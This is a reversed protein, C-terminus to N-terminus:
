RHLLSHKTNACPTIVFLRAVQKYIHANYPTEWLVTDGTMLKYLLLVLLALLEDMTSDSEDKVVVDRVAVQGLEHLFVSHCKSQRGRGQSPQSQHTRHYCLRPPSM